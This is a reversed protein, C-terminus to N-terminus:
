TMIRPDQVSDWIPSGVPLRRRGRGINHRHRERETDRMFLYFRLFIIKIKTEKVLTINFCM